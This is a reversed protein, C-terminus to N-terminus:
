ELGNEEMVWRICSGVVVRKRIGGFRFLGLGNIILSEFIRGGRLDVRRSIKGIEIVLM